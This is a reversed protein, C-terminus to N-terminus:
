SPPTPKPGSGAFYISPYLFKDLGLHELAALLWRYRPYLHAYYDSTENEVVQFESELMGRLERSTFGAHAGLENSFRGRFRAWWETVNWQVKHRTSADRSGLYGLLRSRNPTGIWFGGTSRLVRRMEAVAEHAPAIHELAHYSFVVDFANEAFPLQRADAAILEVRRRADRHFRDLIDIGTLRADLLDALVAAETGDGCGVALIRLRRGFRRQLLLAIAELKPDGGRCASPSECDAGM